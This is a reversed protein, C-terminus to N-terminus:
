QWPQQRQRFPSCPPCRIRLDGAAQLAAKREEMMADALRKGPVGFTPVFQQNGGTRTVFDRIRVPIARLKIMEEDVLRLCHSHFVEVARPEFARRETAAM